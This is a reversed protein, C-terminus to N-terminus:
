QELEGKTVARFTINGKADKLSKFLGVGLLFNLANQRAKQDPIVSEAQKSTIEQCRPHTHQQSTSSHTVHKPGALAAQHLTSELENIRRSM